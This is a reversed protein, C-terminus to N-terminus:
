RHLQVILLPSPSPLLHLMHSPRHMRVVESRGRRGKRRGGGEGEEGEEGAAYSTNSCTMVSGLQNHLASFDLAARIFYWKIVENVCDAFAVLELSAYQLVPYLSAYQVVPHLSYTRSHINM